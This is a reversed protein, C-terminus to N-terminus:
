NEECYRVRADIFVRLKAEITPAAHVRNATERNLTLIDQRLAALYIERKSRFYLYLTGKAVGAAEAVDDVTAAEYGKKAFIKRAAELITGCRFESVVEQKTRPQAAM